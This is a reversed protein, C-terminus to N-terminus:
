EAESWIKEVLEKREAMRPSVDDVGIIPRQRNRDKVCREDVKAEGGRSEDRSRHENRRQIRFVGVGALRDGLVILTIIGHSLIISTVGVVFDLKRQAYGTDTPASLCESSTWAQVGHQRQLLRKQKQPVIGM